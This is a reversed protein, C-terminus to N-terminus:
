SNSILDTPFRIDLFSKVEPLLNRSIGASRQSRSLIVFFPCVFNFMSSDSALPHCCSILCKLLRRATLRSDPRSNTPEAIAEDASLRGDRKPRGQGAKKPNVKEIRSRSHSIHSIKM